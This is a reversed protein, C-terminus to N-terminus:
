RPDFLSPPEADAWGRTRPLWAFVATLIPLPLAFVVTGVLGAVEDAYLTTVGILLALLLIGISALASGFLVGPSRAQLLRVAGVVLGVASGFGLLFVKMSLESGRGIVDAFIFLCVILTLGATVFGLVAAATAVGPRDPGHPWTRDPRAWGWGPPPGYGAPPGYGPPGYAPPTGHVPPAGYPQQSGYATPAGYPQPTEYAPPPGNYTGPPFADWEQGGGNGDM